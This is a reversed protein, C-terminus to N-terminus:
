SSSATAFVSKELHADDDSGNGESVSDSSADFVDDPSLRKKNSPLGVSVYSEIIQKSPRLYIPNKKFDKALTEGNMETNKELTPPVLKSYVSM